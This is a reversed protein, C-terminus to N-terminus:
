ISVNATIVVQFSNRINEWKEISEAKNRLCKFSWNYGVKEIRSDNRIGQISSELYHQLSRLTAYPEKFQHKWNRQNFVGNHFQPVTKNKLSQTKNIELSKLFSVDCILFCMFACNLPYNYLLCGHLWWLPMFYFMALVMGGVRRCRRVKGSQM